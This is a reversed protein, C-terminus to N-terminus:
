LYRPRGQSGCFLIGVLGWCGQLKCHLDFKLSSRSMRFCVDLRIYTIYGEMEGFYIM